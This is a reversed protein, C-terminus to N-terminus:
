AAPAIHFVDDLTSSAVIDKNSIVVRNANVKDIILRSKGTLNNQDDSIYIKYSNTGTTQKQFVFSPALDASVFTLDGAVTANVGQGTLTFQQESDALYAGAWPNFLKMPISLTATGVSPNEPLLWVAQEGKARNDSIPYAQCSNKVFTNSITSTNLIVQLQSTFGKFRFLYSM